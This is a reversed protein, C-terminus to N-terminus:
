IENKVLGLWYNVEKEFRKEAEDKPVYYWEKNVYGPPFEPMMLVRDQMVLNYRREVSDFEGDMDYDFFSWLVFGRSDPSTFEQYEKIQFELFCYIVGCHLTVFHRDYRWDFHDHNTLNEKSTLTKYTVPTQPFQGDERVLDKSLPSLIFDKILLVSGRNESTSSGNLGLVLAIIVGAIILFKRM